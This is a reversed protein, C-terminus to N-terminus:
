RTRTVKTLGPPSDPDRGRARATTEALVFGPLVYALPTLPEPLDPAVVLARERGAVEPGGVTWPRAGARRAVALAEDVAAGAPGDPRFALTPVESGAVVVPGHLLDATSYGDAFIRGTERLKLAVELATAFNHGRSVVLAEDSGALAGVCAAGPGRVWEGAATAAAELVSPLDGLRDAWTVGGGLRDALRAVLGAVVALTAVYTKTAAVAREEGARMPVV